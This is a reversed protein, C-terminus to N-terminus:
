DETGRDLAEVEKKLEEYVSIMLADAETRNADTKILATAMRYMFDPITVVVTVAEAKGEEVWWQLRQEEEVETLARDKFPLAQQEVDGGDYPALTYFAHRCTPDLCRHRRHYGAAHPTAMIAKTGSQCVPCIVYVKPIRSHPVPIKEHTM